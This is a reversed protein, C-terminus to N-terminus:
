IKNHCTKTMIYYNNYTDLYGFMYHQYFIKFVASPRKYNQEMVTSKMFSTKEKLNFSYTWLRLFVGEITPQDSRFILVPRKLQM